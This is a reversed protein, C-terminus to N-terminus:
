VFVDPGEIDFKSCLWEAVATLDQWAEGGQIGLTGDGEEHSLDSSESPSVPCSGDSGGGCMSGSSSRDLAGVRTGRSADREGRRGGDMCGDDEAVVAAAAAYMPLSEHLQSTSLYRSSPLSYSTNLLAGEVPSHAAAPSSTPTPHTIGLFHRPNTTDSLTSMGAVPSRSDASLITQLPATVGSFQNAVAPVASVGPNGQILDLEMDATSTTFTVARLSSTSMIHNNLFNVEAPALERLTAPSSKGSDTDTNSSRRLSNNTTFVIQQHTAFDQGQQQGAYGVVNDECGHAGYGFCDGDVEDGLEMESGHYVPNNGLVSSSEVSSAFVPASTSTTVMSSAQTNATNANDPSPLSTSCSDAGNNMNTNVHTTTTTTNVSPRSVITITDAITTLLDAHGGSGNGGSCSSAPSATSNVDVVSPSAATSVGLEEDADVLLQHLYQIYKCAEKLTDVKSLKKNKRGQPVHQRLTEFGMNVQKVRNRERENRRAMAAPQPRPLGLSTFDIRRKCRLAEQPENESNSDPSLSSAMQSSSGTSTMKSHSSSTAITTSNGTLKAASNKKKGNNNRDNAKKALMTRITNTDAKLLPRLAQMQQAVTPAPPRPATTPPKNAKLVICPGSVFLKSGDAATVPILTRVQQEGGANLASLTESTM